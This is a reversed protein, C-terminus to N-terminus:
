LFYVWVLWVVFAIAVVILAATAINAYLRDDPTEDPDRGPTVALAVAELRRPQAKPKWRPLRLRRCHAKRDLDDGGDHRAQGDDEDEAQENPRRLLVSFLVVGELFPEPDLAPGPEPPLHLGRKVPSRTNTYFM